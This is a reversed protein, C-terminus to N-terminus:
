PHSDLLHDLLGACADTLMAYVDDFGGPGGYYPDPVDADVSVGPDFRRMLRIKEAPVGAEVAGALNQADMALVIDFRASDSAADLQRARSPLDVGHGRAVALARPDPRDGAHWGGTGCSDVEFRDEVGRKRALYLFIGEALPSRCINGMCLFLVGIPGPNM